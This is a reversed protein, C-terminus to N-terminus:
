HDKGIKLYILVLLVIIVAAWSPITALWGFVSYLAVGAIVAGILALISWMVSWMVFRGIFGAPRQIVQMVEAEDEDTWGRLLSIFTFITLLPFACVVALVSWYLEGTPSYYLLAGMALISMFLFFILEKLRQARHSPVDGM